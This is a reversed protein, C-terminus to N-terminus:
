LGQLSFFATASLTLTFCGTSSFLAVLGTSFSVPAAPALNVTSNAAIQQCLAPTVAGNSPATTANILMAYGATGGTTVQGGYFSCGAACIVHSSEVATSSVAAVPAPRTCLRGTTDQTLPAGIGAIYNSASCNSVVQASQASAPLGGLTALAIGFFLVTILSKIKRMIM